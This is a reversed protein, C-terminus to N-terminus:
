HTPKLVSPHRLQEGLGLSMAHLLLRFVGDRASCCHAVRGILCRARLGLGDSWLM